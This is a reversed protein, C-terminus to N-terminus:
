RQTDARNFGLSFFDAPSFGTVRWGKPELKLQFRMQVSRRTPISTFDYPLADMELAATASGHDEEATAQLIQYRFRVENYQQFFARLQGQLDSYGTVERKDFVSLVLQANQTEMGTRLPELVDHIIQDSLSLKQGAAPAQSASDASRTQGAQKQAALLQPPFATAAALLACGLTFVLFKRQSHWLILRKRMLNEALHRWRPREHM